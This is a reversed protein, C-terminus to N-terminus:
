LDDGDTGDAGLPPVPLMREQLMVGDEKNRESLGQLTNMNGVERSRRKFVMVGVGVGLVAFAAVIVGTGLGTTSVPSSAEDVSSVLAFTSLHTTQRSSAAARTTPPPNEKTPEPVIPNETTPEKPSETTTPPVSTVYPTGMAVKQVRLRMTKDEVVDADIRVYVNAQNQPLPDILSVIAATCM